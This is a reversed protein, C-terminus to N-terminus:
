WGEGLRLCSLLSCSEVLPSFPYCLIKAKSSLRSGTCDSGAGPLFCLGRCGPWLEWISGKSRVQSSVQVRSRCVCWQWDMLTLRPCVVGACQVTKQMHSLCTCVLTAGTKATMLSSGRGKESCQAAFNDRFWDECVCGRSKCGLPIPEHKPGYWQLQPTTYTTPMSRISYLDMWTHSVLTVWNLVPRPLWPNGKAVSSWGWAVCPPFSWKSPTPNQRPIWQLSWVLCIVIAWIGLNIGVSPARAVAEIGPCLSM